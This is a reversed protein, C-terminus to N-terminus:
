QIILKVTEYFTYPFTVTKKKFTTYTGRRTHVAKPSFNLISKKPLSDILM